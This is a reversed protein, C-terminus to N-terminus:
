RGRPVSDYSGMEPDNWGEARAVEDMLPYAESIAADDQPNDWVEALSVESARLWFETEEEPLVITVLLRAGEPLSTQELLEIKGEKVIAWITALM